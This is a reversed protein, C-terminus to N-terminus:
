IGDVGDVVFVLDDNGMRKKIVRNVDDLSINKVTDQRKELFDRGLDMAMMLYLQEAINFLSAFRLNFSSLLSNKAMNLEDESIGNKVFDNYEKKLIDEIEKVNAPSASYFINWVEDADSMALYSYIGYTLGEKERIVKNLRSNLGAGGFIFDAVYFPYFDEDLRRIGKTKHVVFSQKSVDSKVRKVDGDYKHNLVEIEKIDSKDKLGLFMFSLFEKALNEDIDGAIGVSLMDKTMYNNLYWIIDDRTVLDLEEKDPISDRGYPHEGYFEENVLKELLYKPSEKHRKKAVELQNRALQLDEDKLHSNYLVDKLIKWAEKEFEKVYSFSFLANDSDVGVGIKIGKEKMVKRLDKRNLNGAGDLLVAEMLHTVGRKEVYADGMRDFGFYISVLSVSDDELLYAKIKGEDVSVEKVNVDFKREKLISNDLIKDADFEKKFFFRDAVLGLCLGCGILLLFIKKM